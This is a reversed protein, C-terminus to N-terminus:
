KGLGSVLVKLPWSQFEELVKCKLTFNLTTTYLKWIHGLAEEQAQLYLHRGVHFPPTLTGEGPIQRAQSLSSWDSCPMLLMRPSRLGPWLPAPPKWKRGGRACSGCHGPAVVSPSAAVRLCARSSGAGLQTYGCPAGETLM